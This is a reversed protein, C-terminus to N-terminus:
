YNAYQKIKIKFRKYLLPHYVIHCISTDVTPCSLTRQSAPDGMGIHRNTYLVTIAVFDDCTIDDIRLKVSNLSFRGYQGDYTLRERSNM